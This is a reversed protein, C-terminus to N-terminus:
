PGILVTEDIRIEKVRAAGEEEIVLVKLEGAPRRDATFLQDRFLYHPGDGGPSLGILGGLDFGYDGIFFFGVPTTRNAFEPHDRMTKELAEPTWRAKTPAALLDRLATGQGQALAALVRIHLPQAEKMLVDMRAQKAEGSEVFRGIIFVGTLGLAVSLGLRIWADRRPSAPPPLMPQSLDASM